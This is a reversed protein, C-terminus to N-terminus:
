DASSAIRCRARAVIVEQFVRRAERQGKPGPLRHERCIAEAAVATVRRITEEGYSCLFQWRNEEHHETYERTFREALAKLEKRSVEGLEARQRARAGEFEDRTVPELLDFGDWLEDEGFPRERGDIDLIRLSSTLYYYGRPNQGFCFYSKPLIDRAELLRAAGESLPM